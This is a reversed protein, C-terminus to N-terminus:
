NIPKPLTGRYLGNLKLAKLAASQAKTVPIDLVGIPWVPIYGGTVLNLWRMYDGWYEEPCMDALEDRTCHKVECAKRILFEQHSPIAYHVDGEPGIVLELELWKAQKHRDISFPLALIEEDTM